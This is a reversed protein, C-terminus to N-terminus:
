YHENSPKPNHGNQLTRTYFAYKLGKEAFICIKCNALYYICIENNIPGLHFNLHLKLLETLILHKVSFHVGASGFFTLV